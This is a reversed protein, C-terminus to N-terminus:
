FPNLTYGQQQLLAHTTMASLSMQVGPLLDEAGVGYFAATQGCLYIEVGNKVLEAILEANPNFGDYADDTLLDKHAGGHVVLALQMNAAPVGAAHHMNLFRAATDLSRNVMGEKAGQKLDFAIRFTAGEPIPAASPVAAIKGFGTILGGDVFPEFGARASLSLFVVATVCLAIALKM